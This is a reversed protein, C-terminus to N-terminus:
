KLYRLSRPERELHFSLLSQLIKRVRPMEEATLPCTEVASPPNKRTWRIFRLLEPPVATKKIPACRDCYIGDQSASLWSKEGAECRCQMCHSFQPLFGSLKLIWGEFYAGICDTDAGSKLAQLCSDLLRFLRDEKQRLPLFEQIIEAFYSLTFSVKLDSQLEFFSELLDSNSITVLDRGEKEYYFIHVRTMPELTSGFRNGFKRAGKAIGKIIGKDQSFFTVLKDQEAFPGTRLIFAESRELPM